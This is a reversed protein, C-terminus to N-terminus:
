DDCRNDYKRCAWGHGDDCKAQWRNCRRDLEKNEQKAQEAEVAGSIVEGIIGVVADGPDDDDYAYASGSFAFSGLLFVLASAKLFTPLKMM